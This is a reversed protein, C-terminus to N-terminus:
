RQEGLFDVLIRGLQRPSEVHPCHGIGELVTLRGDQVSRELHQAHAVPFLSDRDGWVVLTPARIASLDYFATAGESEYRPSEMLEDGLRQYWRANAIYAEVVHTFLPRPIPLPKATVRRQFARFDEASRMVFLNQGALAEAAICPVGDIVIGASNVPVVSAVLEPARSAASLVTAGGLSNGVIHAPRDCVGELFDIAFDGYSEFTHQRSYDVFGADFAPMAPIIVEYEDLLSRAAPLFSDRRDSFGHFWVVTGKRKRGAVLYPTRCGRRDYHM